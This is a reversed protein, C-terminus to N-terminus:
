KPLIEFKKTILKKQDTYLQIIYYGSNFNEVSIKEGSAFNGSKIIKGHTDVIAYYIFKDSESNKILLFDSTPNPFLYTQNENQTEHNGLLPYYAWFDRLNTGNTGTGCFAVDGIVFSVMYRRGLGDFEVAETWTDTEFNYKWFDDFNQTGENDNGTGIYGEGNLVFGTADQRPITGVSSKQTWSNTNPDYEYFDNQDDGFIHGTGVYGKGNNSFAVASSRAEGLFPAITTWSNTVPDYKYFDTEYGTETQGTGVYGLDDIVFSCAGRRPIGPFDAIQVWTNILPIYKWFDNKYESLDNEGLGVYGYNGISFATSHYRYGGGFDAIQTWCDTSPDYEWYDKFTEVTGSNIHGGGIYGKNDIAFGTCRHRAAGGFNAKQVWAGYSLQSQAIIFQMLLVAAIKFSNSRYV